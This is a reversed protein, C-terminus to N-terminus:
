RNRGQRKSHNGNDKEKQIIDEERERCVHNCKGSLPAERYDTDDCDCFCPEGCDPCWHM